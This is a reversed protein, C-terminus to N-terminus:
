FFISQKVVVASADVLQIGLQAALISHVELGRDSLYLLYGLFHLRTGNELRRRTVMGCFPNGGRPHWGMLCRHKVQRYGTNILVCFVM